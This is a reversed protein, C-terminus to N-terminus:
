AATAAGVGHEAFFALAASDHLVREKTGPALENSFTGPANGPAIVVYPQCLGGHGCCAQTVDPLCGLCPDVHEYHVLGEVPM